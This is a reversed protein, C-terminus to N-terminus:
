LIVPLNHGFEQIKDAIDLVKEQKIKACLMEYRM